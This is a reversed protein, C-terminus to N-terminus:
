SGAVVSSSSGVVSSGSSSLLSELSVLSESSVLKEEESESVLLLVPVLPVVLVFLVLLSSVSSLTEIDSDVEPESVLPVVLVFLVLLSSYLPEFDSELELHGLTLLSRAFPHMWLQKNSPSSPQGAQLRVHRPPNPAILTCTKDIHCLIDCSPIRYSWIYCMSYYLM